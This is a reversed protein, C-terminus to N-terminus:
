RICAHSYHSINFFASCKINTHWLVKAVSPSWTDQPTRPCAGRHFNSLFPAIQHIKLHKLYYIACPMNYSRVHLKTCNMVNISLKTFNELSKLHFSGWGGGGWYGEFKYLLDASIEPITGPSRLFASILLDASLEWAQLSYYSM